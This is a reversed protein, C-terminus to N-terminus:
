YQLTSYFYTMLKAEVLHDVTIMITTGHAVEAMPAVEALPVVVIM